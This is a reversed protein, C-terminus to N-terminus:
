DGAPDTDQLFIEELQGALGGLAEDRSETAVLVAGEWDSRKLRHQADLWYAARREGEHYQDIRWWQGNIAEDWGVSVLHSEDSAEGTRDDLVTIAKLLGAEFPVAAVVPYIAFRPISQVDDCLFTVPDKGGISFSYATWSPDPPATLSLSGFWSGVFGGETLALMEDIRISDELHVIVRRRAGIHSGKQQIREWTTGEDFAPPVKGRDWRESALRFARSVRGESM